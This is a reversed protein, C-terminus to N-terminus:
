RAAHADEVSAAIANALKDLYEGDLAQGQSYFHNFTTPGCHTHTAALVVNQAPIGPRKESDARVRTALRGEIGLLEVSVLATKTAGDDIVLARSFLEDHVGEAVGKRADFGAMQCGVNPTINCAGTGILASSRM